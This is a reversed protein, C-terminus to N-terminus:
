PVPILKLYDLGFRYGKSADNKGTVTVKFVPRGAPLTVIGLDVPDAAKITEGYLDVPQGVEAGNLSVQFIGYEPSKTYRAILRYRGAAQAPLPLELTEGTGDARWLLQRDNSWQKGYGFMGQSSCQNAPKPDPRLSEGEIANPEHYVM